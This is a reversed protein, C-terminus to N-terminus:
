RLQAMGAPQNDNKIDKRNYSQQIKIDHNNSCGYGYGTDMATDMTMAMAMAMAMVMV